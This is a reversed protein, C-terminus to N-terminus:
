KKAKQTTKKRPKRKAEDIHSPKSAIIVKYIRDLKELARITTQHEEVSASNDYIFVIIMDNPNTTLYEVIDIKIDNEVKLFENHDKIFKAEVLLKLSPIKFDVLSYKHGIKPFPEEDSVDDFVSRLIVWLISQIDKEDNIAWYHDDKNPWRKMASEFNSLIRVVSDKSNVITEISEILCSHVVSFAIPQLIGEPLVTTSFDTLIKIQYDRLLSLDKIQLYGKRLGWFLLLLADFTQNPMFYTVAYTNSEVIAGIIRYMLKQQETVGSEALRKELTQILWESYETRVSSPLEKLGLAIGLFDRPYYVFSIRDHPFIDRSKLKTIGTSYLAVLTSRDDNSFKELALSYGLKSLALYSGNLADKKLVTSLEKIAVSNLNIKSGLVFKAFLGNLNGEKNNM